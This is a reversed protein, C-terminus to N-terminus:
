PAISDGESRGKIQVSLEKKSLQRFGFNENKMSSFFHADSGGVKNKIYIDHM